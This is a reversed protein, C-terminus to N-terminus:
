GRKRKICLVLLSMEKWFLDVLVAAIYTMIILEILSIVAVQTWTIVKVAEYFYYCFFSHILWMNTSRKGFCLFVKKVFRSAHLLDVCFVIMLPVYVFDIVNGIVSNRMYIILLMFLIDTFPNLFKKEKLEDKLLVLLNGHAMALGMWFSAIYYSQCLFNAYIFNSNLDGLCEIKGIAPFFNIVAINGLAILCINTVNSFRNVLKMIVPVTILAFVYSKFFWWESNYSSDFGLMNKIFSDWKFEAYRSCISEDVCYIPQKSFFIFAIPIFILFVKWYSCYLKKLKDLLDIKKNKCGLYIGYGSCFFFISVCINGFQGLYTAGGQDFFTFFSKLNGGMVRDPFMFLHHAIMWVIAIGKILKTDEKSFFADM